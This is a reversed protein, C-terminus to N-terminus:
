FYKLPFDFALEFLEANFKSLKVRTGSFVEPSGSALKAIVSFVFRLAALNEKTRM